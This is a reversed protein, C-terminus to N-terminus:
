TASQTETKKLKKAKKYESKRADPNIPKVHKIALWLFISSILAGLILFRAFPTLFFDGPNNAFYFINSDARQRTIDMTALLAYMPNLSCIWSIFDEWWRNGYITFSLDTRGTRLLNIFLISGIPLGFALLSSSWYANVTAGKNTRNRASWFIGLSGLMLCSMLMTIVGVVMEELGVGGMLFAISIIPADAVILLLMYSLAAFLKGVIIESPKLLTVLLVDYTQREKEGSLSGSSLGPALVIIAFLIATVISLFYTTGTDQSRQGGGGYSYYNSSRYYYNNYILLGLGALLGTAFALGYIAHWSRMRHRLEKLIIPNYRLSQWIQKPWKLFDSKTKKPTQTTKEIM